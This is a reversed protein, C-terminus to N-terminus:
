NLKRFDRFLTRYNYRGVFTIGRAWLCTAISGVNDAFVHRRLGVNAASPGVNDAFLGCVDERAWMTQLYPGRVTEARQRM